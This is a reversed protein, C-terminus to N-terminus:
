RGKRTSLASSCLDAPVSAGVVRGPEPELITRTELSVGHGPVNRSGMETKTRRTAIVERLEDLEKAFRREKAADEAAVKERHAKIIEVLGEVTPERVTPYIHPIAVTYEDGSKYLYDAILKRSEESATPQVDIAIHGRSDEQASFGRRLAEAQDLKVKIITM